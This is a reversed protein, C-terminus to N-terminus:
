NTLITSNLLPSISQTHQASFALHSSTPKTITQVMINSNRTQNYTQDSVLPYNAPTSSYLPIRKQFLSLANLPMHIPIDINGTTPTLPCTYTQSTSLVTMPNHTQNPPM